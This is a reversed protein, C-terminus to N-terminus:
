PDWRIGTSRNAGSMRMVHALYHPKNTEIVKKLDNQSAAILGSLFAFLYLDRDTYGDMSRLDSPVLAPANLLVSPDGRMQTIQDRRSIFFSKIDCRHGGLSVSYKDPDTFPSSSIVEFPIEHQSLYRRFALEVAAEAAVRRLRDYPRGGGADFSNPLTRLAYAIGGETLGPPYPLRIIDSANLM